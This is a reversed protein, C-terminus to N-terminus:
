FYRRLVAHADQYGRAINADIMEQRIDLIGGIPKAPKISIITAPGADYERVPGIGGVEVEIILRFGKELLMETPRNNYVGGDIYRRGDIKVTRFIPLSASALIYDFLQGAPIDDRFIGVPKLETLSFTLVGLDVASRRLETENLFKQMQRRLPTTDLGKEQIVLRTLLPLNRRDFVNDPVPLAEPLDILDTVCVEHWARDALEYDGQCFLAGNIAGISVGVVSAIPVQYEHLAQWVGLQYAGRTGGGALVLGIKDM